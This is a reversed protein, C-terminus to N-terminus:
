PEQSFVNLLLLPNKQKGTVIRPKKHSPINKLGDLDGQNTNIALINVGFQVMSAAVRGGGEGCGIGLVSFGM